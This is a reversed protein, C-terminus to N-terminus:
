KKIDDVEVAHFENYKELVKEYKLPMKMDYLIVFTQKKTDDFFRESRNATKEDSLFKILALNLAIRDLLYEKFSDKNTHWQNANESQREIEQDLAKAKEEPTLSSNDPSIPISCLRSSARKFIEGSNNILEQVPLNYKESLVNMAKFYIAGPLRYDFVAELEFLMIQMNQSFESFNKDYIKDWSKLNALVDMANTIMRTKKKKVDSVEKTDEVLPENDKLCNEALKQAASLDIVAHLTSEKQINYDELTRDLNLTKGAFVLKVTDCSIMNKQCYSQRVVEIRDTKHTDLTTTSGTLNKIFIQMPTSDAAHISKSLLAIAVIRGIFKYM